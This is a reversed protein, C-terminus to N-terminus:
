YLVRHTEKHGRGEAMNMGSYLSPSAWVQSIQRGNEANFVLAPFSTHTLGSCHSVTYLSGLIGMIANDPAMKTSRACDPSLLGSVLSFHNQLHLFGPRGPGWKGSELHGSTM